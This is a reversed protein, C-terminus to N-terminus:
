KWANTYTTIRWMNTLLMEEQEGGGADGGAGIGWTSFEREGSPPGGAWYSVCFFFHFKLCSYKIYFSFQFVRERGSCGGARKDSIIYKNFFKACTSCFYSFSKLTRQISTVPLVKAILDLQEGRPCAPSVSRGCKCFEKSSFKNMFVMVWIIVWLHICLYM